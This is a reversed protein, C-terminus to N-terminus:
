VANHKGLVEIDIDEWFTGEIESGDKYTFFTSLLGSGRAMRMRMEMRGYQYAQSSYIEGGKYPKGHGMSPVGLVVAATVLGLAASVASTRKM